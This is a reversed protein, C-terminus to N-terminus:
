EELMAPELSQDIIGSESLAVHDSLYIFEVRRNKEHQSVSLLPDQSGWAFTEIQESKVGAQILQDAVLKARKEALKENYVKNGQNDTHGHIQIKYDPHVALFDAHHKITALQEQDPTKQDFAYFLVRPQPPQINLMANDDEQAEQAAIATNEMSDTANVAKNDTLSDKEDLVIQHGNTGAAPQQHQAIFAEGEILQAKGAPTDVTQGTVTENYRDTPENSRNIGFESLTDSQEDFASEQEQGANDTMTIQYTAGTDELSDPQHEIVATSEAEPQKVTQSGCATLLTLATALITLGWVPQKNFYQIQM